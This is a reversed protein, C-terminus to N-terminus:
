IFVFKHREPCSRLFSISTNIREWKGGCRSGVKRFRTIRNVIGDGECRSENKRLASKQCEVCVINGRKLTARRHFKNSMCKKEISKVLFAITYPIKGEFPRATTQYKLNDRLQMMQFQSTSNRFSAYRHPLIRAVETRCSSFCGRIELKYGCPKGGFSPKQQIARKRIRKGKGCSSSCPSWETWESMVCDRPSCVTRFNQCCDNYTECGRDCFCVNSDNNVREFYRCASNVEDCCLTANTCGGEYSSSDNKAVNKTLSPSSWVAVLVLVTLQLYHM